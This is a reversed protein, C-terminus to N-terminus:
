RVEIIPPVLPRKWKLEKTLFDLKKEENWESYTGMRLYKIIADVTESHRTSEQHFDLKMLMMGFTSVRRILDALRGDALVAPGCSQLSEYCLLLPELLQDTTEYFDSPNQEYPCDELLFELRCILCSLFPLPYKYERPRLLPFKKVTRGVEVGKSEYAQLQNYEFVTKDWQKRYDNDMYFNRLM